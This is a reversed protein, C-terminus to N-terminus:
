VGVKSGMLWGGKWLWEVKGRGGCGWVGGWVGLCGGVVEIEALTLVALVGTGKVGIARASRDGGRGGRGGVV